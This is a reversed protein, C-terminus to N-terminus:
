HVQFHPCPSVLKGTNVENDAGKQGASSTEPVKQASDVWSRQSAKLKLYLEEVRESVSSRSKVIAPFQSKINNLQDRLDHTASILTKLPFPSKNSEPTGIRALKEVAEGQLACFSKEIDM